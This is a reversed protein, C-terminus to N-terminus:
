FEIEYCGADPTNADRTKGDLDLTIGPLPRAYRNAISGMTDLRYKRDNADLFLTDQLTANLCPNCHEFFDPYATEKILDRVRVICNELKYDFFNPDDVRDLLEVQDARSGMFICNTFRANLPFLDYQECAADQCLVNSMTLAVGDVGYSAATCYRFNYNGGWVLQVCYANNNYFLCNEADINARLGILASNSTNYIQTNRLTLDVASDARLGIISNRIICHEM